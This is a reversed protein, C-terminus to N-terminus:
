QQDPREQSPQSPEKGKFRDILMLVFSACGSLLVLSVIVLFVLFGGQGEKSWGKIIEFLESM